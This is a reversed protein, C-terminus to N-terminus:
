RFMPYYFMNGNESQLFNNCIKLNKVHSQNTTPRNKSNKLKYYANNYFTNVSEMSWGM